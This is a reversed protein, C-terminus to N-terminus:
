PRVGPHERLAIFARRQASKVANETMDLRSAIEAISLGHLRLRVIERQAPRLTLIAEHLRRAADAAVVRDLPGDLDSEIEELDEISSSPRKRRYEDIVTNRAIQYLWARFPGDTYRPLAALAKTFVASTIDQAVADSGGTRARVFGRIEPAYREYLVGFVERDDQALRVLEEDPLNEWEPTRSAFHRHRRGWWM